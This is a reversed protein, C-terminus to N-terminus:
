IYRIEIGGLSVSGSLTLTPANEEPASFIRDTDVGGLTCHLRDIIRWHKPVFLKIAGFSCDLSVVAGNPCPKVQDFFVELAGFSCYLQATELSDACLHRSVAGFNVSVSPNNDNEGYETRIRSRMQASDGSQNGHRYQHHGCGSNRSCWNKRPLLITLGISTLVSALILTWPRLYPLEFPTQFVIYLVALPVPLAAFHLEAICQVLFVLSLVAVIISGVGIDAFGNLQNLLIFVAALLLFTGWIFKSFGTKM